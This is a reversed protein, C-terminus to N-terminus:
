ATGNNRFLSLKSHITLIAPHGDRDIAIRSNRQGSVITEDNWNVWNFYIYKLIFSYNDYVTGVFHINDNQDMVFDLESGMTGLFMVQIPIMHEMWENSTENYSAFLIGESKLFMMVPTNDSKLRMKLAPSNYPSKKIVWEGNRRFALSYCSSANSYYGIVPNGDSTLDISSYSSNHYNNVGFKEPIEKIWTEAFLGTSKTMYRLGSTPDTLAGQQFSIHPIEYQDLELDCSVGTYASEDIVSGVWANNIRELYRLDFFDYDMHVIKPHSSKDLALACYYGLNNGSSDAVERNWVQSFSSVSWISQWVFVLILILNKM